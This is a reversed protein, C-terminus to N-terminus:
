SVLHSFLHVCISLCVKHLNDQDSMKGGHKGQLKIQLLDGLFSLCIAFVKTLALYCHFVQKTQDVKYMYRHMVKGVTSEDHDHIYM